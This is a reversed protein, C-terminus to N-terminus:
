FRAPSNERRGRGVGPLELHGKAKPQMRAIESEPWAKTEEEGQTRPRWKQTECPCKHKFKPGVSHDLITEIGSGKSLHM